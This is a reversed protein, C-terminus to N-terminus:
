GQKFEELRIDIDPLNFQAYIAQDTCIGVVAALSMALPVYEQPEKDGWLEVIYDHETANRLTSLCSVRARFVLAGGPELRLSIGMCCLPPILAIADELRQTPSSTEPISLKDRLFNELSQASEFLM